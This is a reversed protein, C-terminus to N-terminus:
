IVYDTRDIVGIYVVEYKQQILDKLDNPGIGNMSRVVVEFKQVTHDLTVTKGDELKNGHLHVQM